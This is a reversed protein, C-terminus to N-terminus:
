MLSSMKIKQMCSSFGKGKSAGLEFSDMDEALQLPTVISISHSPITSSSKSQTLYTSLSVPLQGLYGILHLYLALCSSGRHYQTEVPLAAHALKARQWCWVKGDHM